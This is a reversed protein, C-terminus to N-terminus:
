GLAVKSGSQILHSVLRNIEPFSPQNSAGAEWEWELVDIKKRKVQKSKDVDVSITVGTIILFMVEAAAYIVGIPVGDVMVGTDDYVYMRPWDLSQASFERRGKWQFKKLWQAAQRAAITKDLTAAADWVANAGKFASIYTNADTVSIYSDANSLGTGDEVVLPADPDVIIAM